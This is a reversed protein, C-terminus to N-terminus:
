SITLHNTLVNLTDPHVQCCSQLLKKMTKVNVSHHPCPSYSPETGSSNAHENTAVTSAPFNIDNDDIQNDKEKVATGMEERARLQDAHSRWIQEGVQVCYMMSRMREM